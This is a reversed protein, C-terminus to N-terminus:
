TIGEVTSAEIFQSMTPITSATATSTSPVSPLITSTSSPTSVTSNLTSSNKLFSPTLDSYTSGPTGPIGPTGPNSPKSFLYFISLKFNILSQNIMNYDNIHDASNPLVVIFYLAFVVSSFIIVNIYSSYDSKYEMDDLIESYAEKIGSKIGAKIEEERMALSQSTTFANKILNIYETIINDIYNYFLNYIHKITVIHPEILDSYVSYTNNVPTTFDTFYLIAFAALIIHIYFIIKIFLTFFSFFNKGTGSKLSLKNFIFSFLPLIYFYKNFLIIFKNLKHMLKFM